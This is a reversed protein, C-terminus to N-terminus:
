KKNNANITSKVLAALIGALSILTACILATILVGNSM